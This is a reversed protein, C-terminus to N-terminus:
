LTLSLDTLLLHTVNEHGIAQSLKRGVQSGNATLEAQTPVWAIREELTKIPNEGAHIQTPETIAILKGRGPKSDKDRLFLATLDYESRHNSRVTQLDVIFGFDGESFEASSGFAYHLAYNAASTGTNAISRLTSELLGADALHKIAGDDLASDLANYAPDRDITAATVLVSSLTEPSLLTTRGDELVYDLSHIMTDDSVFDSVLQDFLGAQALREAAGNGLAYIIERIGEGYCYLAATRFARDYDEITKDDPAHLIGYAEYFNLGYALQTNLYKTRHDQLRQRIAQVDPDDPHFTGM